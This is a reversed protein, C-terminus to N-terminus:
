MDKDNGLDTDMLHIVQSEVYEASSIDLFTMDGEGGDVQIDGGDIQTDQNDNVEGGRVVNEQNDAAVRRKKNAGDEERRNFREDSQIMRPDGQSRLHEEIRKRCEENHNVAPLNRNVARCGPCGVTFGLKRITERNIRARRVIYDGDDGCIVPIPKQREDPLLVRSRIEIGSRGPTPEWPTGRTDNFWQPNWAEAEEMSKVDRM